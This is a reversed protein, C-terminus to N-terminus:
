DRAPRGALLEDIAGGARALWAGTDAPDEGLIAVPIANRAGLERVKREAAAFAERPVSVGAAEYVFGRLTTDIAQRLFASLRASHLASLQEQSGRAGGLLWCAITVSELAARMTALRDPTGLHCEAGTAEIAERGASSRTTIRVAHGEGVMQAALLRGRCGGAVILIRAM